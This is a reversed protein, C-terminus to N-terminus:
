GEVVIGEIKSAKERLREEASVPVSIRILCENDFIHERHEIDDNEKLLKMVENMAAYPFRVTMNRMVKRMVPKSNSIADAAASRYAKILGSAGLLTGGFYRVVVVLIDTLENSNIQGLIPKGATGQPEGDDNARWQKRQPGLMYAYCHHRADHYEKRLRDLIERIEEPASVPFAFALFRSGKERYFGEGAAEITLYSGESIM